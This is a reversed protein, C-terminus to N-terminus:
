INVKEDTRHMEIEQDTFLSTLARGHLYHWAEVLDHTGLHLSDVLKEGSHHGTRAQQQGESVKGLTHHAPSVAPDPIGLSVCCVHGM